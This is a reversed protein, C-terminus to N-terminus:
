QNAPAGVATFLTKLTNDTELLLYGARHALDDFTDDQIEYKISKLSGDRHLMFTMKECHLELAAISRSSAVAQLESDRLDENNITITSKPELEDKIKAKEGLIMGAPLEQRQLMWEMLWMEMNIGEFIPTFAFNLGARRLLTIAADAGGDSSAGIWCHKSIAQFVIPTVTESQPMKPLQERVIEARIEKYDGKAVEEGRSERQKVRKKLERELFSKPVSRKFALLEAYIFHSGELQIVRTDPITDFERFGITSQELHQCERAPYNNAVAEMEEISPPNDDGIQYIRLQKIM